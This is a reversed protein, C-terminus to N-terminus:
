QNISRQIEQENVKRWLPQTDISQRLQKRSPLNVRIFSELDEEGDADAEDEQAEIWWDELGEDEPLRLLKAAKAAKKREEESREQVGAQTNKKAASKSDRGGGRSKTSISAKQRPARKAEEMEYEKQLKARHQEELKQIEQARLRNIASRRSLDRQIRLVGGEGM